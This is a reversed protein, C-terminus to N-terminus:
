PCRRSLRSSTSTEPLRLCQARQGARLPKTPDTVADSRGRNRVDYYIVTRHKTLPEFDSVYVLGNPVVLTPEGSGVRQYYLHLGDDTLLFGESRAM